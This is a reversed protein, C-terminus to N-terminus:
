EAEEEECRVTGENLKNEAKEQDGTVAMYVHEEQRGHM